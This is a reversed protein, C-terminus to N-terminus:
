GGPGARFVEKQVASRAGLPLTADAVWPIITHLRGQAEIVVVSGVETGQVTVDGASPGLGAQLIAQAHAVGEALTRDESAALRAGDQVAGVVVNQSHYFLAFQVLAVAVAILLPFVVATEVMAQGAEGSGDWRPSSREDERRM